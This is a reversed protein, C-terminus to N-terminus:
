RNITEHYFRGIRRLYSDIAKFITSYIFKLKGRPTSFRPKETAVPLGNNAGELLRATGNDIFNM